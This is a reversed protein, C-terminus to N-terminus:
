CILLCFIHIHKIILQKLINRFIYILSCFEINVLNITIYLTDRPLFEPM